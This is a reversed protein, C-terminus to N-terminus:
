TPYHDRTKERKRVTFERNPVCIRFNSSYLNQITSFEIFNFNIFFILIIIIHLHMLNIYAINYIDNLNEPVKILAMKKKM